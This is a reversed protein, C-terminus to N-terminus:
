VLQEVVDVQMLMDMHLLVRSLTQNVYPGVPSIAICRGTAAQCRTGLACRSKLPQLCSVLQPIFAASYIGVDNAIAPKKYPGGLFSAFTM